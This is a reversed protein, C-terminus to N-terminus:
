TNKSKIYMIRDKILRTLRDDSINISSTDRFRKKSIILAENQANTDFDNNAKKDKVYVIYTYEVTWSFGIIDKKPFKLVSDAIVDNTYKSLDIRYREYLNFSNTLTFVM